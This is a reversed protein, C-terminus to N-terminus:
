DESIVKVKKDKDSFKNRLAGSLHPYLRGETMGVPFIRTFLVTLLFLLLQWKNLVKKEDSLLSLKIWGCELPLCAWKLLSDDQAEALEREIQKQEDQKKKEEAAIKKEEEVWFKM